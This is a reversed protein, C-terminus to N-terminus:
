ELEEVWGHSSLSYLVDGTEAAIYVVVGREEMGWLASYRAIYVTLYESEYDGYLIKKNEKLQIENVSSITIYDRRKKGLYKKLIDHAEEKTIM